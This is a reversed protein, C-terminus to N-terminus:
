RLATSRPSELKSFHLLSRWIFFLKIKQVEELSLRVNVRSFSIYKQRGMEVIQDSMLLFFDKNEGESTNKIVEQLPDIYSGPVM